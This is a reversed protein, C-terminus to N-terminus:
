ARCAVCHQYNKNSCYLCFLTSYVNTSYNNNKAGRGKIKKLKIYEVSVKPTLLSKSYAASEHKMSHTLTKLIVINCQHFPYKVAIRMEQKRQFQTSQTTTNTQAQTNQTSPATKHM